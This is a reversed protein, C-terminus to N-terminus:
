CFHFIFKLFILFLNLLIELIIKKNKLFIKKNKSFYKKSIKIFKNKM